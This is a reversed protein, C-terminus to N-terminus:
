PQTPLLGLLGVGLGRRAPLGGGCGGAELGSRMSKPQRHRM